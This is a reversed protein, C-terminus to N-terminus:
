DTSNSEQNEKQEAMQKERVQEHGHIIVFWSDLNRKMLVLGAILKWIAFVVAAVCLLGAINWPILGITVQAVAAIVSSVVIWFLSNSMRELSGYRTASKEGVLEKRKDFDEAYEPKDYVEQKMHIVIFTKAALMFGALSLFGNFFDSRLEENFFELAKSESFLWILADTIAKRM